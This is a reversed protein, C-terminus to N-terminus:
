VPHATPWVSNRALPLEAVPLKWYWVGAWTTASATPTVAARESPPTPGRSSTVVPNVDSRIVLVGSAPPM